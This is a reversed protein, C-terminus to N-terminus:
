NVSAGRRPRVSVLRPREEAEDVGLASRLQDEYDASPMEFEADHEPKCAEQREAEIDEDLLSEQQPAVVEVGSKSAAFQMHVEEGGM